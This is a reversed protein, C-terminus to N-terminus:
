HTQSVTVDLHKGIASQSHIGLYRFDVGEIENIYFVHVLIQNAILLGSKLGFLVTYANHMYNFLIHM